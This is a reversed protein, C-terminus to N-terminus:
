LLFAGVLAIGVGLFIAIGKRSNFQHGESSEFLITTSIHLFIGIVLASIEQFYFSVSSIYQSVFLGLPSTMSFLLVLLIVRLFSMKSQILMHTLVMSVPIKHLAIGSLLSGHIHSHNSHHHHIGLPMGEIFSHICLGVLISFPVTGHIHNHGHEVGKSFQELILQILFGILVFLGTKLNNENNFTEPILHLITISFLYAGSFSILLKTTNNSITKFRFAIFAGLFVSLFLVIYQILDM